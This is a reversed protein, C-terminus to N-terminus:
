FYINNRRFELEKEFEMKKYVNKANPNPRYITLRDGERLFYCDVISGNSLGKIKTATSPVDTLNWFTLNSMDILATDTRYYKVIENDITKETMKIGLMKCFADLQKRTDMRSFHWQGKHIIIKHRREQHRSHFKNYKDLDDVISIELMTNYM